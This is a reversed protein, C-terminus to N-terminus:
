YDELREGPMGYVVKSYMPFVTSYGPVPAQETGTLHPYVYMVLDPNPLRKFQSYIENAADRSYASQIDRGTEFRRRLDSRADMLEQNTAGSQNWIDMMTKNRDHPFMKDKSTSCGALALV